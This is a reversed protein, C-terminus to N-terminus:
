WYGTGREFQMEQNRLYAIFDLTLIQANEALAGDGIIARYDTKSM